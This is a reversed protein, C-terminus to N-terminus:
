VLVLVISQVRLALCCYADATSAHLFSGKHSSTPAGKIAAPTDRWDQRAVLWLVLCFRKLKSSCTM